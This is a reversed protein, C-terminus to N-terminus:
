SPARGGGLEDMERVLEEIARATQVSHQGGRLALAHSLVAQDHKRAGEIAAEALRRAEDTRGARLEVYGLDVEFKPLISTPHRRALELGREFEARAAPLDDEVYHLFGSALLFRLHDRGSPPLAAVTALTSRAADLDGLEISVLAINIATRARNVRSGRSALEM